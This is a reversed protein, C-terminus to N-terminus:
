AKAIEWLLNFVQKQSKAIELNHIELGFLEKKYFHSFAVVDGYIYTDHNIEIKSKPLSRGQYYKQIYEPVQTFSKIHDVNNLIERAYVQRSVYEQRLKEAFRRGACDNWNLYGFGVVESGKGAKLTNWLLQQIGRKGKFYIVQTNDSAADKLQNLLPLIQQYSSKLKDLKAEKQALILDLKEPSAAKFRASKNKLVEQALGLNKLDELTRYISTRNIGTKRSLELASLVGNQLLSLYVKVAKQELGFNKLQDYINKKNTM